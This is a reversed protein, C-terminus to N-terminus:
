QQLIGAQRAAEVFAERAVEVDVVTRRKMAVLCATMAALRADSKDRQPWEAVLTRAAEEVSTVNRAVDGPESIPVAEFWLRLPTGM